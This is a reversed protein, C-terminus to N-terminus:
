LLILSYETFPVGTANDVMSYVIERVTTIETGSVQTLKLFIQLSQILNDVYRTVEMTIQEDNDEVQSKFACIFTGVASLFEFCVLQPEEFESTIRREFLELEKKFLEAYM